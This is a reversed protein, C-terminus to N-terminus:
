AEYEKFEEMPGNFDPDMYLITGKGLGPPPRLRASTREGVLKAVVQADKTIVIEDGSDLGNILEPLRATAEEITVTTTM